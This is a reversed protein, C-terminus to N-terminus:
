RCARRVIETVFDLTGNMQLIQFTIVEKEKSVTHSRHVGVLARAGVNLRGCTPVLWMLESNSLVLGSLLCVHM